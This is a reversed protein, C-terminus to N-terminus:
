KRVEGLGACTDGAMLNMGFVTHLDGGPDGLDWALGDVDADVHCTACSITGNGSLRADFLFGRGERISTPTPDHSGAPVEALVSGSATGIVTVSNSIKNLVYLRQM